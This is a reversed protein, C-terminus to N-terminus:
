HGNLCRWSSRSAALNAGVVPSAEHRLGGQQTGHRAHHLFARLVRRFRPHLATATRRCPRATPISPSIIRATTNVHTIGSASRTTLSRGPRPGGLRRAHSPCSSVDGKAALLTLLLSAVYQVERQPRSVNARAPKVKDRGRARVFVRGRGGAAHPQWKSHHM